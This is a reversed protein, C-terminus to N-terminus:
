DARLQDVTSEALVARCYWYAISHQMKEVTPGDQLGLRILPHVRCDRDVLYGNWIEPVEAQGDDSPCICGQDVADDTGPMPITKSTM